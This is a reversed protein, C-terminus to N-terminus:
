QSIKRLDEVAAVATQRLSRIKQAAVSLGSRAFDTNFFQDVSGVKLLLLVPAAFYKDHYRESSRACNVPYRQIL